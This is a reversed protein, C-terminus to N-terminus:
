LHTIIHVGVASLVWSGRQLIQCFGIWLILVWDFIRHLAISGLLVVLAGPRSAKRTKRATRAKRTKRAM